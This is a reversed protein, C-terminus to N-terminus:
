EKLKERNVQLIGTRDKLLQAIKDLGLGIVLAWFMTLEQGTIEQTFRLTVYILLVSLVIRKWNDAILFRYSFAVPTNKSSVDRNNTQLLLSIGVGVLAFFYAAFFYQLNSTGFFLEKM